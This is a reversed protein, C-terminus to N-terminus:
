ERRECRATRPADPRGLSVYLGVVPTLASNSTIKIGATGNYVQASNLNSTDTTRAGGCDILGDWTTIVGTIHLLRTPVDPIMCNSVYNGESTVSWYFVTGLPTNALTQREISEVVSAGNTGVGSGAAPRGRQYVWLGENRLNRRDGGNPM